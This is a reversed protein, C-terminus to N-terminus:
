SKKECIFVLNESIVTIWKGVLVMRSLKIVIFIEVAYDSFVSVMAMM